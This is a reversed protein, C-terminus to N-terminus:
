LRLVNNNCIEAFLKQINQLSALKIALDDEAHLKVKYNVIVDKGYYIKAFINKAHNM